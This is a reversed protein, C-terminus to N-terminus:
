GRPRFSVAIAGHYTAVSPGVNETIQILQNGTANCKKVSAFSYAVGASSWEFDEVANTWGFTPPTSTNYNMASCVICGDGKQNINIDYTLTGPNYNFKNDLISTDADLIKYVAIGCEFANIGGNITIVINGSTANTAILWHRLNTNTTGGDSLSSVSTAGAGAVTCSVQIGSGFGSASYCAVLIMKNNSAEAGLGNAGAFSTFTFSPQGASSIRQTGLLTCRVPPVHSSLVGEMAVHM